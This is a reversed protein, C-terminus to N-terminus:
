WLLGITNGGVRLARALYWSIQDPKNGSWFIILQAYIWWGWIMVFTLMIKGQFWFTIPGCSSGCRNM